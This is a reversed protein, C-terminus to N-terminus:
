SITITCDGTILYADEGLETIDGSTVLTGSFTNFTGVAGGKYLPVNYVGAGTNDTVAVVGGVPLGYEPPIDDCTCIVFSVRDDGITVKATSLDGGGGGGGGSSLARAIAIDFLDM